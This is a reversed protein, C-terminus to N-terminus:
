PVEKAERVLDRLVELYEMGFAESPEISTDEHWENWSTIMVMRVPGSALVLAERLQDAFLAPSRPIVPHAAQPRVETDDFGPIVDPVFAVGQQRAADAWISYRSRVRDAFGDDIGPVSTHMNYATVGDFPSLRSSTPLQWYVEDGILFPEVGTVERVVARVEDLAATLDGAFIRTLYLFVVPRGEIQLYAPHGLVHQALYAFDGTLRQRRAPEDVGIAGNEVGLLGPSEYLICFRMDSGELADLLSGRIVRDEYSDPGWWSAAFFDLGYESAWSLQQRIVTEDASDYEGLLPTGRYGERWHRGDAGYWPYWYAGVLRPAVPSTAVTAGPTPSPVTAPTTAVQVHGSPGAPACATLSLLM